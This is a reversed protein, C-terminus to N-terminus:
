PRAAVATSIKEKCDGLFRDNQTVILGPSADIPQIWINDVGKESVPYAVAKGDSECKRDM